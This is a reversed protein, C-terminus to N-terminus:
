QKSAIVKMFTTVCAESLIKARRLTHGCSLRTCHSENVAVSERKQEAEHGRQKGESVRQALMALTLFVRGQQSESPFELALDVQM